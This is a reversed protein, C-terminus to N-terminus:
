GQGRWLQPCVMLRIKGVDAAGGEIVAYAAAGSCFVAEDVGDGLVVPSASKIVPGHSGFIVTGSGVGGACTPAEWASSGIYEVSGQEGVYVTLRIVPHTSREISVPGSSVIAADGFCIM